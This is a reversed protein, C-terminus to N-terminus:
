SRYLYDLRSLDGRKEEMQKCQKCERTMYVVDLVKGTDESVAAVLGDCASWGGHVGHVTSAQVLLKKQWNKM